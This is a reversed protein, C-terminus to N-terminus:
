PRYCFMRFLDTPAEFLEDVATFGADHGLAIWSSVTEPLDFTRVHAMLGEWETAALASWAQRQQEYRALYHKRDEGERSTPEYILFRGRAGVVARIESM